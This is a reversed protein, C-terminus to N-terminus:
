ERFSSTEQTYSILQLRSCVGINVGLEESWLLVEEEDQSPNSLRPDSLAWLGRDAAPEWKPMKDRVSEFRGPCWTINNDLTWRSGSNKQKNVYTCRKISPVTSPWYIVIHWLVWGFSLMYYWDSDSHVIFFNFHLPVRYVRFTWSQTRVM